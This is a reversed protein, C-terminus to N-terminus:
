QKQILIQEQLEQWQMLVFKQLKKNEAKLQKVNDSKIHQHLMKRWNDFRDILLSAMEMYRGVYVTKIQNSQKLDMNTQHLQKNLTALISRQRAYYLLFLGM